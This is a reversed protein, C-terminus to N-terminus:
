WPNSTREGHVIYWGLIGSITSAIGTIMLVTGILREDNVYAAVSPPVTGGSWPASTAAAAGIFMIGFFLLIVGLGIFFAPVAERRGQVVDPHEPIKERPM